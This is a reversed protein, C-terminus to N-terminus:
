SYFFDMSKTNFKRYLDHSSTFHNSNCFGEIKPIVGNFFQILLSERNEGNQYKLMYTKLKGKIHQILENKDVSELTNLRKTTFEYIFDGFPSGQAKTHSTHRYNNVGDQFSIMGDTFHFGARFVGILLALWSNLDKNNFTMVLKGGEKLVRKCESFVLVLNEEYSNYTKSNESNKKRNVVAENNHEYTSVDYLDKNWMHWFRSLELYQVNSGYPPDTIIVDICKPPLSLENLMGTKILINKKNKTFDSFNNTLRFEFSQNQNFEICNQLNKFSKTFASHPNLECFEAPTWYAHKAWTNPTGNQWGEVSFTMINTDRLSNSFVFKLIDFTKKMNKYQNIKDLLLLNIYYNKKTFLNRFTIFGKEFLLDEKQRDWDLPIKEDIFQIKQHKIKNYLLKVHKINNEAFEKDLKMNFRKNCHNCKGHLSLYKPELRKLKATVNGIKNKNCNTNRCSYVGNRIKNDNSLSFENKCSNCEVVHALEYWQVSTKTKCNPCSIMFTRECLKELFNCVDQYIPFFGPPTIKHFMNKIIFTSLPNLDAAVIKRGHKLGEYATVGGGCFPDLVIDGTKSYNQILAEFLNWPRRAFYRHIKYPPTHSRANLGVFKQTKSKSVVKSM